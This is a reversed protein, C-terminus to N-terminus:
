QVKKDKSQIDVFAICIPQRIMEFIRFTDVNMEEVERISKKNIWYMFGHTPNGSLLDHSFTRGDNRKVVVTSYAGEPFWLSGYSAKYKKILKKDTVMGIRLEDRKASYRGTWRLNKLEDNFDKKDMVFGIVRTKTKRDTYIKGMSIPNAGLFKTNEQWENELSLFKQIDDDTTLTVVPNIMKNIFHLIEATSDRNTGEYVIFDGEIFVM